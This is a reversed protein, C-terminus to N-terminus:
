NIKVLYKIWFFLHVYWAKQSLNIFLNQEARGPRSVAYFLNDTSVYDAPQIWQSKLMWIWYLDASWFATDEMRISKRMLITDKRDFAKVEYYFRWRHFKWSIMYPGM